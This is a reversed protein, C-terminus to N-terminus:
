TKNGNQENQIKGFKETGENKLRLMTSQVYQVHQALSVLILNLEDVELDISIKVKEM